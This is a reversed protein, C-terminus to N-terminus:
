NKIANMDDLLFGELKSGNKSGFLNVKELYKLSNKLRLIM